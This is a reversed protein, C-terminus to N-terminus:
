AGGFDVENELEILAAGTRGKPNNTNLSRSHESGHVIRKGTVGICPVDFRVVDPLVSFVQIFTRRINEHSIRRM